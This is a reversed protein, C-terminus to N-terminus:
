TGYIDVSKLIGSYITDGYFRVIFSNLGTHITVPNYTVLNGVPYVSSLVVGAPTSLTCLGTPVAGATFYGTITVPHASSTTISNMTLTINVAKNEINMICTGTSGNNWYDGSYYAVLTRPLGVSIENKISPDWVITGTSITQTSTTYRIYTGTGKFNHSSCYAAIPAPDLSPSSPPYGLAIIGNKIIDTGSQYILWVNCYPGLPQAQSSIVTYYGTGITSNIILTTGIKVQQAISLGIFYYWGEFNPNADKYATLVGTPDAPFIGFNDGGITIINTSTFAIDNSYTIPAYSGVLTATGLTNTTTNGNAADYLIVTGSPYRTDPYGFQGIIKITATTSTNISGNTNRYYFTFSSTNNISISTTQPIGYISTTTNSVVPPYVNNWQASFYHTGTTTIVNPSVIYTATLGINAATGLTATGDFFTVTGTSVPTNNTVHAVATLTLPQKISTSTSSVNLTLSATTIILTSTNSRNGVYPIGNVYGGQWDSYFTHHTATSIIISQSINFGIINSNTFASTAVPYGVSESPIGYLKAQLQYTSAVQQFLDDQLIRALSGAANTQQPNSPYDIIWQANGLVNINWPYTGNVTRVIYTGSTTVDSWYSKTLAPLSKFHEFMNYGNAFTLWLDISTSYQDYPRVKVINFIGYGITSTIDMQDGVILNLPYVTPIRIMYSNPIVGTWDIDQGINIQHTDNYGSWNTVTTFNSTISQDIGPGTQYLIVAGNLQTATNATVTYSFNGSYLENISNTGTLSLTWPPVYGSIATYTGTSSFPYFKPTALSGPYDARILHTGTSGSPATISALFPYQVFDSGINTIVTATGIFNNDEYFSINNTIARRFETALKATYTITDFQFVSPNPNVTVLMNTITSKDKVVWTLPDSTEEIFRPHSSQNGDWIATITYTGIGYNYYPTLVAINDTLTFAGLSTGDKYFTVAGNVHTSTNVIAELQLFYEGLVGYSYIPNLVLGGTLTQGRLVTYPIDASEGQYPISNIDYGPWIATLTHNGAPLNNTTISAINNIISATSIEVHDILFSVFGPVLTSTTFQTTLIIEGEGTVITGSATSVSFLFQGPLKYGAAVSLNVPVGQTTKAAYRGEGPWTAYVQNSGIPMNTVVLAATTTNYFTSTGLIVVGTGTDTYFTVASTKYMPADSIAKLAIPRGYITSTTSVALAFQSPRTFYPDPELVPPLDPQTAIAFQLNSIPM